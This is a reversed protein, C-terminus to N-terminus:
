KTSLKSLGGDASKTEFYRQKAAGDEIKALLADAEAQTLKGAAVAADLKAEVAALDLNGKRHHKAHHKKLPAALIAPLKADADAQTLEGSAVLADLKSGVFETRKDLAEARLELKAQAVADAVVAPDLDLIEAVRTALAGQKATVTGDGASVVTAVATLGMALLVLMIGLRKKM